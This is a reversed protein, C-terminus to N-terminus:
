PHFVSSFEHHKRLSENRIETKDSRVAEMNERGEPSIKDINLYM